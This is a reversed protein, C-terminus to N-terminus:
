RTQAPGRGPWGRPVLTGPGPRTPHGHRASRIIAPRARRPGPELFTRAGCPASTPLAWRARAWPFRLLSCVASPRGTRGRHPRGPSDPLPSVTPYSGVAPAAVGGARCAGGPSLGFLPAATRRPGRRPGRRCSERTPRELGGAVTTGSRHDDLGRAPGSLVRSVPGSAAKKAGVPDCSLSGDARRRLVHSSPTRPRVRRRQCATPETRSSTAAQPLVDLRGPAELDHVLVGERVIRPGCPGPARVRARVRPRRRFSTWGGPAELDRV